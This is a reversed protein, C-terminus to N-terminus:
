KIIVTKTASDFKVQNGKVLRHVQTENEKDVFSLKASGSTVNLNFKGLEGDVEMKFEGQELFSLSNFIRLSIPKTNEYIVIGDKQELLFNEPILNVFWIEANSDLTMKLQDTFTVKAKGLNGIKVQEGQLIASPSSIKEWDQSEREQKKVEGSLNDLTGQLALSPPKSDYVYNQKNVAPKREETKINQQKPFLFRSLTFALGIGSFFIIILILKFFVSSKKKVTEM